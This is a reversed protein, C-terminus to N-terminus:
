MELVIHNLDLKDVERQGGGEAVEEDLWVHSSPILDVTRSLETDSWIHQQILYESHLSLTLLQWFLM